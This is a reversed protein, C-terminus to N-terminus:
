LSGISKAIAFTLGILGIAVGVFWTQMQFTTPMNSLKGEIHSLRQRIDDIGTELQKVRKELMTENGGGGGADIIKDTRHQILDIINSDEIM